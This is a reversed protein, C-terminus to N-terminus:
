EASEKDEPELDLIAQLEETIILYIGKEKAVQLLGRVAAILSHRQGLLEQVRVVYATERSQSLSRTVPKSNQTQVKECMSKVLRVFDALADIEWLEGDLEIKNKSM